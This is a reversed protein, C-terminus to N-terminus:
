YNEYYLIIKYQFKEIKKKTRYYYVICIHLHNTSYILYNYYYQVYLIKIFLINFIVNRM